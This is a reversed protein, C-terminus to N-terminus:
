MTCTIYECSNMDYLVISIYMYVIFIAFIKFIDCQKGYGNTLIGGM